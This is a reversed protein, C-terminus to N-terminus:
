KNIIEIFDRIRKEEEKPELPFLPEQGSLLTLKLEKRTDCRLGKRPSCKRAVRPIITCSPLRSSQIERSPGSGSKRVGTFRAVVRAKAREDDEDDNDNNDDDDNFITPDHYAPAAFATPCVFLKTRSQIRRARGRSAHNAM